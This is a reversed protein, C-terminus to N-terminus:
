LLSWSFHTKNLFQQKSRHTNDNFLLLPLCFHGETVLPHLFSLLLTRETAIHLDILMSLRNTHPNNVELRVRNHKTYRTDGWYLLSTWARGYCVLLCHVPSCIDTQVSAPQTYVLLSAESGRCLGSYLVPCGWESWWPSHTVSCDILPFSPLLVIDRPEWTTIPGQVCRGVHWPTETLARAEM